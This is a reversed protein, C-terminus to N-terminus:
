ESGGDVASVTPIHISTDGGEEHETEVAEEEDETSNEEVIKGHKDDGDEGFELEGGV